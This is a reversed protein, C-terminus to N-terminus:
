RGFQWWKTHKISISKQFSENSITQTKSLHLDSNPNFDIFDGLTTDIAKWGTYECIKKIANLSADSGHVHLMVNEMPDDDSSNFEISYDNEELILWSRDTTMDINPFVSSVMKEYYERSCLTKPQFGVPIEDLHEINPPLDQFLVDWSM